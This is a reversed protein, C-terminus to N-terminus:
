CQDFAYGLAVHVARSGGGEGYPVMGELAVHFAWSGDDESHNGVVHVDGSLVLM